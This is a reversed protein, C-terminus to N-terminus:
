FVNNNLLINNNPASIRNPLTSIYHTEPNVYSFDVCEKQTYDYYELEPDCQYPNIKILEVTHPELLYDIKSLDKGIITGTNFVYLYKQKSKDKGKFNLIKFKLMNSSDETINLINNTGDYAVFGTQNRLSFTDDDNFILYFLTNLSIDESEGFEQSEYILYKGNNKKIVITQGSLFDENKLSPYVFNDKPMEEKEYDIFKFNSGSLKNKGFFVTQDDYNLYYKNNINYNDQKDGIHYYSIIKHKDNQSDEIFLYENFDLTKVLQLKPDIDKKFSTSLFKQTKDHRLCLIDNNESKM